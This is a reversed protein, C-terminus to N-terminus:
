RRARSGGCPKGQCGSCSGEVEVQLAEARRISLASGRVQLVLPDGLPAVRTVFVQTGPLLGMEMLRRALGRQCRLRRIVAHGGVPVRGLLSLGQDAIPLPTSRRYMLMSSFVLLRRALPGVGNM